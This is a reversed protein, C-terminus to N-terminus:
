GQCNGLSVQTEVTALRVQPHTLAPCFRFIRGVCSEYPEQSGHVQSAKNRFIEILESLYQGSSSSAARPRKERLLFNRHFDPELITEMLDRILNGYPMKQAEANNLCRREFSGHGQDNSHSESSNRASKLLRWSRERLVSAIVRAPAKSNRASRFSLEEGILEGKGGM